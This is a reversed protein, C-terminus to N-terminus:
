FKCHLTDKQQFNIDVVAIPSTTCSYCTLSSPDYPCKAYCHSMPVHIVLYIHQIKHINIM